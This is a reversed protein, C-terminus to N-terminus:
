QLLIDSYPVGKQLLKERLDVDTYNKEIKVKGEPTLRISVVTELVEKGEDTGLALLMFRGKAVSAVLINEIDQFTLPGELPKLVDKVAETYDVKVSTEM